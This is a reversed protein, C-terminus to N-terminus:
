RGRTNGWLDIHLRPTLRYGRQIVADVIELSTKRIVDSNIGEPMIYVPRLGHRDVLADVDALELPNSVVFKFNARGTAMLSDLAGPNYRVSLANGSNALKPSVNYQDFLDPWACAITGATEVEVHLGNQRLLENLIRLSDQQLMPEGGSVVLAKVGLALIREALSAVSETRLEKRLDFRSADWTYPTDCFVCKQNCGGLRLFACPLGLSAGEGQITPGFVESVLLQAEKSSRPTEKTKM